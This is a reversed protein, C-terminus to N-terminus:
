VVTIEGRAQGKFAHKLANSITENLILGLPILSDISLKQKEIDFKFDIKEENDYSDLINITLERIYNGVELKSLDESKYLKEHILAMSRIRNEVENLRERFNNQDIFDSQLRILSSIIQLNNKVRHHIEKLLTEKEEKSVLTRKLEENQYTLINKHKKELRLRKRSTVFLLIFIIIILILVGFTFYINRRNSIDSLVKNEGKIFELEQEIRLNENHISDKVFDYKSHQTEIEEFNSSTEISDKQQFYRDYNLVANEFDNVAAYARAVELTISYNDNCHRSIKEALDLYYTLSDSNNTELETYRIVEECPDNIRNILQNFDNNSIFQISDSGLAISGLFLINLFLILRM